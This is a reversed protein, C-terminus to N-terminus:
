LQANARTTILHKAQRALAAANLCPDRDNVWKSDLSCPYAAECTHEWAVNGIRKLYDTATPTPMRLYACYDDTATENLKARALEAPRHFGEHNHLAKRWQQLVCALYNSRCSLSKLMM